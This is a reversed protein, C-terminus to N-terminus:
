ISVGRVWVEHIHWKEDMSGQYSARVHRIGTNSGGRVQVPAYCERLFRHEHEVSSDFCQVEVESLTWHIGDTSSAFACDRLIQETGIDVLFAMDLARTEPTVADLLDLHIFDGMRANEASVFSTHPQGDVASSPPHSLYHEKGDVGILEVNKEEISLMAQASDVTHLSQSLLLRINTELICTVVACAAKTVSSTSSAIPSKAVSIYPIRRDGSASSICPWTDCNLIGDLYQAAKTIHRRNRSDGDTGATFPQGGGLEIGQDFWIEPVENRLISFYNDAMTMEEFSFNLRHLLELFEEANSRSFITGHGLWAFSTHLRGDASHIERLQSSLHEHPPLLHVAKAHDLDTMRRRLAQIIEPRILYDDDQTFCYPTSSQACAMFRAQFLINSPSNYIKLKEPSCGSSAFDKITVPNPSNNWVFIQSIVGDLVPKCLLSAILVVNPFRSWNLIVATTDARGSAPRMLRTYNEYHSVDQLYSIPLNAPIDWERLTRDASRGSSRWYGSMSAFAAVIGCVLACVLAGLGLSPARTGKQSTQPVRNNLFM